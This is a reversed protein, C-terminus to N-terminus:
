AEKEAIIRLLDGVTIITQIEREPITIGYAVEVESILSFFDLSSIELEEMFRTEETISDVNIEDCLSLLMEIIENM